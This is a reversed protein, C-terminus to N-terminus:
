KTIATGDKFHFTLGGDANVVAKEILANWLPESFETLAEDQKAMGSIFGQLISRRERRSVLEREADSVKAAAAKYRKTLAAYHESFEDQPISASANEQVYKRILEGIVEANEQAEKLKQEAEACDSLMDRITRCDRLIDNKVAFLENFADTFRRKIDEEYLHPTLCGHEFKGNCQWITRKYKDTSHWVKSGLFGGCDGCVLKSSFCSTSTYRRGLAKRRAMEAQVAEFDAVSVIPEHSGEVYYQPVQGSTRGYLYSKQHM